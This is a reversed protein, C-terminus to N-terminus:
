VCVYEAFTRSAGGFVPDGQQFRTVKGGVTEVEGAVDAGPCNLKPKRMGTTPRMIYVGSMFHYDMPNAAAAHVRVLVEDDGPVPKEVDELHLVDPSGYSRYIIAKM